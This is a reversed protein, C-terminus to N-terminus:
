MFIDMDYSWKFGYATKYGKVGRACRGISSGYIIKLSGQVDKDIISGYKEKLHRAAEGCSGFSDIFIGDINYQYIRKSKYHKEGLIAERKKQITIKSQKKGLHAERLKQKTEKNRTTGLRAKRIKQKTEESRKGCSGGGEMLNYGDPSLTGMLNVM